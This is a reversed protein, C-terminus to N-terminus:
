RGADRHQEAAAPGSARRQKALQAFPESARRDLVDVDFPRRRGGFPKKARDCRHRREGHRVVPVPMELVNWAIDRDRYLTNFTISDGTLVVLKRADLPAKEAGNAGVLAAADFVVGDDIDYQNQPEQTTTGMARSGQTVFDEPAPDGNRELGARVRDRNADRRNTLEIQKDKPLKVREDHHARIDNNCDKM